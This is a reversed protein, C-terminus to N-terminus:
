PRLDVKLEPEALCEVCIAPHRLRLTFSDPVSERSLAVVFYAAGVLDATCMRPQLPDSTVSYVLDRQHDIVVDDLRLEPCSSGIGHGFLAVVEDALDVAPRAESLELSAWLAQWSAANTAAVVSYPEVSGDGSSGAALLRWGDGSEVNAWPGPMPYVNVVLMGGHPGELREKLSPDDSKLELQVVNNKTDVGLSLPQTDTSLLAKFDDVLSMMLRDLAAKSYQCPVVRLPRGRAIEALNQEHMELDDTFMMVVTPGELYLGGFQDAHREGYAVFRMVPEAVFDREIFALEEPTVLIGLESMVSTPDAHVAIVWERDARLDWDDRIEIARDIEASDDPTPTPSPSATPSPEPSSSPTAVTTPAPPPPPSPELGAPLAICGSALLAIAAIMAIRTM